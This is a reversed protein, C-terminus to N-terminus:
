GLKDETTVTDSLEVEIGAEPATDARQRRGRRPQEAELAEKVAKGADTLFLEGDNVHGLVTHEGNVIGILQGGVLDAKLDENETFKDWPNSM